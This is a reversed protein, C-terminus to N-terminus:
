SGLLFREGYDARIMRMDVLAQWLEQPVESTAAEVLSAVRNPNSTSLALSTVAPHSCGFAVCVNFPTQAYQECLGEFNERWDLRMVDEPIRSSIKQFDFHGGGVLFGGHTVGSNILPINRSALSEIFDVLDPPHSLVTLSSRLMGWDMPCRGALEKIVSWNKASVGIAAVEGADRLEGLARYAGEIDCLLRKRHDSGEASDLYRDPDLVSVLQPKYNGLIECGDEYCRLIGEYSIDQVANHEIDIWIGKDFGTGKDFSTGGNSGSSSEPGTAPTRRWGLQNSLIVDEPGIGMAELERGIVELALGAGYMGETDIAVPKPVSAFWQRVMNAKADDRMAVFLNGLAATGFMVSPMKLNTNGFERLNSSPNTM